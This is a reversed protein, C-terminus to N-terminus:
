AKKRNIGMLGLLASGILWIAGPVPVANIVGVANWDAGGGFGNGDYILNGLSDLSSGGEGAGVIDDLRLYNINNLDVLGSLVNTDDALDNLDFGTGEWTDQDGSGSVYNGALNNVYTPDVNPFNTMDELYSSQFTAWNDGDTSVSVYALEAYVGEHPNVAGVVYDTWFGNEWVVFDDGAGNTIAAGFGVTIFGGNVPPDPSPGGNGVALSSDLAGLINEANTDDLYQDVTYGEVTTAWGVFDADATTYGHLDYPGDFDGPAAFAVGASLFMILVAIIFTKTKM